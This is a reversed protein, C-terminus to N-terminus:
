LHCEVELMQYIDQTLDISNLDFSDLTCQQTSAEGWSIKMHPQLLGLKNLFIQNSQGAIGLQHGYADLMESGIPIQKQHDLNLILIVNENRTAQFVSLTSSFRRPIIKEEFRDLTTNLPLKKPKFQVVNFDYPSLNAYIANGFRDFNESWKKSGKSEDIQDIHAIAFTDGVTKALTVGYPHAVIGGSISGAWQRQKESISLTSNLSTRPHKYGVVAGFQSQNKQEDQRYNASLGYSWNSTTGGSQSVNLSGLSSVMPKAQYQSQSSVAYKKSNWSLPMSLSLSFNRDLNQNVSETQTMAISFNLKRWYNSYNLQYQMYNQDDHWYQSQLVSLSFTGGQKLPIKQSLSVVLQQKLLHSIQFQDMETQTLDKQNLASFTNSLSQYNESQRLFNASLNSLRQAFLGSRYSLKYKQGSIQQQYQLTQAQEISAQLGGMLTNIVGGFVLNKYPDSYIGATFLNSYHNFGYNFSAQVINQDTIKNQLRYRGVAVSYNKQGIRLLNLQMNLPVIFVRKETDNEHIELTLDGSDSVGRIDDIKFPGSAVTREYLKNGNQYVIVRAQGFAINEIIPSYNRQSQNRMMNDTDWSLGMLSIGDLYASQTQLQGLSLRASQHVFDHYLLNSNSTYSPAESNQVSVSGQHRFYWGPFNLGMKLGLFHNDSQTHTDVDQSFNYNYQYDAFAAKVGVNFDDASIYDSNKRDLLLDPISLEIKQASTDISYSIYPNLTKIFLCDKQQDLEIVNQKFGLKQMQAPKLCLDSEGTIEHYDIQYLIKGIPQANMQTELLYDGALILDGRQYVSLDAHKNDEGFLSVGSFIFEEDSTKDQSVNAQVTQACAFLFILKLFRRSM